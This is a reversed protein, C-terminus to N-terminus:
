APPLLEYKACPKEDESASLESSSASVQRRVFVQMVCAGAIRTNRQFTTALFRDLERM